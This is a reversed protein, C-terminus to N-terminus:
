VKSDAIAVEFMEKFKETMQNLIKFKPKREKNFLIIGGYVSVFNDIGSPTGHEVSQFVVSIDNITNKMEENIQKMANRKLLTLLITSFVTNFAASSGLCKGLPIKSNIEILIDSPNEIWYKQWSFKMKFAFIGM